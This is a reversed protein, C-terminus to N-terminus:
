SPYLPSPIWYEQMVQLALDQFASEADFGLSTLFSVVAERQPAALSALRLPVRDPPRLSSLTFQIVLFDSASRHKVAFAMLALLYARWSQPDLHAIGRSYRKLYDDTPEDSQDLARAPRPSHSDIADGERLTLTPPEPPFATAVHALVEAPTM